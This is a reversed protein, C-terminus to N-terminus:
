VELGDQSVSHSNQVLWMSRSQETNLVPSLDKWPCLSLVCFYIIRRALRCATLTTLPIFQGWSGQARRAGAWQPTQPFVRLDGGAEGQSM